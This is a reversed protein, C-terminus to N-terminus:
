IEQVTFSINTIGTLFNTSQPNKVVVATIYNIGNFFRNISGSDTFTITTQTGNSPLSRTIYAGAGQLYWSANPNASTPGNTQLNLLDDIPATGGFTKGNLYIIIMPGIGNSPDSWTSNFTLTILRSPFFAGINFYGPNPVYTVTGLRGANVTYYPTPGQDVRANLQTWNTPNGYSFGTPNNTNQTSPLANTSIVGNSLIGQIALNSGITVNGYFHADGTTYQLWYGPSSTNGITANFSVINGVSLVNAALKDATITGAAIQTATITNAAIQGATISGAAIQTATISGAIINGGGVTNAALRPTGSASTVLNGITLTDGIIVNGTFLASGTGADIWYGVNSTDNPGNVSGGKLTLAYVSNTNIQAATITGTVILSGDIVEGVADIWFAGDFSKVVSKGLGSFQATDGAIPTYGTGIPPITNTRSAAFDNTFQAQTYLTPDGSTIIYALPIFGRTGPSGVGGSQFTLAPTTWATTNSINALANSTSFGAQSSWITTNSPNNPIVNSWGIPAILRTNAFDYYGVSSIALPTLTNAQYVVGVTTTTGNTGNAGFKYILSPADWTTATVVDDINSAFLFSSVYVNDNATPINAFWGTPSVLTQTSFTYNGGTPTVPVTNSSKFVSAQYVSWGNGGPTGAAVTITDLDIAVYDTTNPQILWDSTPAATGVFWQINRGGTTKYYLNKTTGFGGSIKTYSYSIPSTPAVVDNTNVIGYYARGVPSTSANTGYVDDAFLVYMYRDRYGIITGGASISGDTNYTVINATNNTINGVNSALQELVLDLAQDGTPPVYITM